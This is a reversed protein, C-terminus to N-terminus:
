GQPDARDQMAMQVMPEFARDTVLGAGNDVRVMAYAPAATNWHVYTYAVDRGRPTNYVFGATGRGLVKLGFLGPAM